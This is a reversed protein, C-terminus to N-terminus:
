GAADFVRRLGDVLWGNEPAVTPGPGRCSFGEILDVADGEVSDTAAALAGFRVAVQHGVAVTFALNPHCARVALSGSREEGRNLYFAPGLAAAYVLATAVEDTEAPQVRGLPLLVDREHIWADWLAHACVATISVHGPPAEAPKAWDGDSLSELLAAVEANTAALRELTMPPAVGRAKEVMAAPVKVPDFSVLLRTPDDRLGAGLSHVWFQNVGAVHEAVDQVSWGECRSPANWEELSLQSLADALRNRQRIVAESPNAVVSDVDIVAL